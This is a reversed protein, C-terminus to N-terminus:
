ENVHGETNIRSPKEKVFARGGAVINVICDSDRAQYSQDDNEFFDPFFSKRMSSSYM